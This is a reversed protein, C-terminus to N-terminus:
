KWPWWWKAKRAEELRKAEELRMFFPYNIHVTIIHSGIRLPGRDFRYDLKGDTLSLLYNSWRDDYYLGIAPLARGPEVRGRLFVHNSAPFIGLDIGNLDEDIELQAGSSIGGVSWGKVFENGGSKSPLGAMIESQIGTRLDIVRFIVAADESMFSPIDNKTMMAKQYLPPAM